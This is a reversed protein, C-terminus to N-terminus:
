KIPLIGSILSLKETTVTSIMRIETIGIATSSTRPRKSRAASARSHRINRKQTTDYAFSNGSTFIRINIDNTTGSPPVWTNKKRLEKTKHALTSSPTM